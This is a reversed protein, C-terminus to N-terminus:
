PQGVASRPAEAARDACFSDADARMPIGKQGGPQTAKAAAVAANIEAVTSLPLDAVQDGTAPNFVPTRRPSGSVYRKGAVANEIVQMAM